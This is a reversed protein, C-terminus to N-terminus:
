KKGGALKSIKFDDFEGGANGSMLGSLGTRETTTTKHTFLLVDDMYVNLVGSKSNADVRLRYRVSQQFRFPYETALFSSGDSTFEDSNFEVVRMGERYTPCVVVDVMHGADQYWITIGVYGYISLGTEVSQSSFVRDAVLAMNNDSGATEFLTGSEVWWNGYTHAGPYGFATFSWGVADGDDFNDSFLVPSPKPSPTPKGTPALQASADVAVLCVALTLLRVLRKM